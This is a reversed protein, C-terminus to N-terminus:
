GLFAGGTYGDMGLTWNPQAAGQIYFQLQEEYGDNVLPMPTYYQGAAAAAMGNQMLQHQPSNNSSHGNDFAQILMGLGDTGVRGDHPQAMYTQQQQPASLPFQQQYPQFPNPPSPQQAFHAAISHMQFQQQPPLAPSISHQQQHQQPPAQQPGTPTLYAPSGAPRPSAMTSSAAPSSGPIPLTRETPAAITQKLPPLRIPHPIPDKGDDMSSSVPITKPDRSFRDLSDAWTGALPWVDKCEMLIAVTRQLMM